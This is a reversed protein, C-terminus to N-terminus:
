DAEPLDVDGAEGAEAQLRMQRRKRAGLLLAGSTMLAWTTPEPVPAGPPTVPPAPPRPVLRPFRPGPRRPRFPLGVPPSVFIPGPVITPRLPRRPGAPRPGFRRQADASTVLLLTLLLVRIM